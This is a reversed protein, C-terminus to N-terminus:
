KNAVVVLDNEVPKNSEFFGIKQLRQWDQEAGKVDGTEFRCISRAALITKENPLYNIAENYFKVAKKFNGKMKMKNGKQLCDNGIESFDSSQHMKFAISIEKEMPVNIGNVTGAQWKGSTLGLVRIIEDDIKPCVSNIIKIDTLEGESTVVFSIVETGQKNCRVSEQPYEIFNLFFQNVSEFSNGQILTGNCSFAPNTVVNENFENKNQGTAFVTIAMGVLFILNAKM